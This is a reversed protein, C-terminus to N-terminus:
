RRRVRVFPSEVIEALRSQLAAANEFLLAAPLEPNVERAMQRSWELSVGSLGCRYNLFQWASVPDHFSSPRCESSLKPHRQFVRDAIEGLASIVHVAGDGDTLTRHAQVSNHLDM